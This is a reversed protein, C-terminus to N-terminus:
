VRYQALPGIATMVHYLMSAPIDAALPRGERDYADMWGGTCADAFYSTRLSELLDGASGPRATEPHRLRARFMELQPWLRRNGDLVHGDTDVCNFAFGSDRDRGSIDAFGILRRRWSVLDHGTRAEYEALLWAWEHCHGPEARWPGAPRAWDGPLEEIVAGSVADFFSDELRRVCTQACALAQGSGTAADLALCAELLHMHPNAARLDPALEPDFFGKGSKDAMCDQVFTLAELALDLARPEGFAQYATAGALIVFAHDYLGRRLDIHRGSRDLRHVWGGKPARAPGDLYELGLMAIRKAEEPDWGLIAAESFAFIQRPIVRMRRERDPLPAGDLTLSEVFGGKDEDWATRAWLPLCDQMLWHRAWGCAEHPVGSASQAAGVVSRIGAAEGLPTVIVAERTAAIAIGSVGKVAIVPGESRIYSGTVGDLAVPGFAANGNADRHSLTHLAAYDGVDSWGMAVPVVSALETKEMVAYDISIAPSDAFAARDVIRGGTAPDARAHDLARRAAALVGPAHRELEGLMVSARFLFIGGNWFYEGSALYTKATDLDPKEVFAKVKRVAGDGSARIYGYGTAPHDPNIGFTVIHGAAAANAGARIAELFADPQAIHHDAPLILILEGPDASLAALAVAPASDRAVPELILDAGPLHTRLLAGHRASGIAAVPAICVTEMTAAYLRSATQALM